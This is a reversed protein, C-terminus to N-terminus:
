NPALKRVQNLVDDITPVDQITESVRRWQERGNKDILIATRIAIDTGRHGNVHLLGYSKIVRADPDSLIDFQRDSAKEWVMRAHELDDVSIALVKTDLKDFDDKHQAFERLEAM